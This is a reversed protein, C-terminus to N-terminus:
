LFLSSSVVAFHLAISYTDAVLRCDHVKKFCWSSMTVLMWITLIVHM